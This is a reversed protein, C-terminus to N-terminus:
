LNEWSTRLEGQRTLSVGIYRTRGAEKWEKLTPWHNEMDRMNHIMLLDIPRKNLNEVSRELHRIGEQKGNVTIKGALFLKDQLGMESLIGGIVPPDPRFFAPTDFFRGGQDVMTQILSMPLEKGEPPLEIFPKPAGLGVMPLTEDTGPIPRTNMKEQAFSRAPLSAAAALVASNALFERRGINRFHPM